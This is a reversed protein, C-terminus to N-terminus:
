SPHFYLLIYLYNGPVMTHCNGNRAFESSIVGGFKDNRGWPYLVLRGFDILVFIYGFTPVRLLTGDEMKYYLFTDIGVKRVRVNSVHLDNHVAGYKSQIVCLASFVQFFASWWCQANSEERLVRFM